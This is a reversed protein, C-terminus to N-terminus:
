ILLGLDSCSMEAFCPQCPSWLTQVQLVLSCTRVIYVLLEQEGSVFQTVAMIADSLSVQWTHEVSGFTGRKRERGGPSNESEGREREGQTHNERERERLTTRERARTTKRERVSKGEKM